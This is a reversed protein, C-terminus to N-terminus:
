LPEKIADNGGGLHSCTSVAIVFHSRCLVYKCLREVFFTNSKKHKVDAVHRFQPLLDRAKLSLLFM